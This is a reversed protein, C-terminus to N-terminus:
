LNYSTFTLYLPRLMYSPPVGFHELTDKAPWRLMRLLIRLLLSPWYMPRLMYSPPVRFHQRAMVTHAASDTAALFALVYAAVYVVAPDWFVGVHEQRAMVAHVDSDTTGHRLLTCMRQLLARLLINLLMPPM